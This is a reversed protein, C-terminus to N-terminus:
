HQDDSRGRDERLGHGRIIYFFGDGSKRGILARVLAETIPHDRKRWLFLLTRIQLRTIALVQFSSTEGFGVRVRLYLDDFHLTLAKFDLAPIPNQRGVLGGEVGPRVFKEHLHRFAAFGAHREIDSHALAAIGDPQRLLSPVDGAEIGCVLGDRKRLLRRLLEAHPEVRFDFTFFLEVEAFAAPIQNEDTIGAAAFHGGRQM